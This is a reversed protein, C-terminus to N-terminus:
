YSKCVRKGNANTWPYTGVRCPRPTASGGALSGGFSRCVKNGSASLAPYKGLPCAGGPPPMSSKPESVFRRCHSKGWQDMVSYAGSPCERAEARWAVGSALAGLALAIMLGAKM